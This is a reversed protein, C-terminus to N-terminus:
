KEKPKFQYAGISLSDPRRQNGRIDINISPNLTLTNLYKGGNFIVSASDPRFDYRTAGKFHNNSTTLLNGAAYTTQRSRILNKEFSLIDVNGASASIGFEEAQNGTIVNNVLSFRLQNRRIVKDNEYADALITGQGRNAYGVTGSYTFTNHYLSYDGGQVLAVLNSACDYVVNNWAKIKSNFALIGTGSMNRIITNSLDLDVPQADEPVNTQIGRFANEIIAHNIKNGKSGEAFVIQGWQGSQKEFEKEKRFGSFTAPQKATGNVLLTGGVIFYTNPLFRVKVGENITLTCGPNVILSNIIVYPKLTDTWTQTCIEADRFFTANQGYARLRVKQTQALGEVKFQLSDEVVFPLNANNPDITVTVLVYISDGGYIEVKSQNGVKGKVSISYLSNPSVSVNTLTIGKSNPNYVRLRKTISKLQTFVTDFYVTDDSFQLAKEPTATFDEEKSQCAFFVTLALIVLGLQKWFKLLKFQQM